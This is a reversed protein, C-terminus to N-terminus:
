IHILSLLEKYEANSGFRPDVKYYDTTSYGHYSWKDQNNELIPNIIFSFVSLGVMSSGGM